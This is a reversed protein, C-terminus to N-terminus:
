REGIPACSADLRPAYISREAGRRLPEAARRAAPTDGAACLALVRTVEREERLVEGANRDLEALQILALSAQGQRLAVNARRLRELVEAFDGQQRPAPPRRAAASPPASSSGTSRPAVPPEHTPQSAPPTSDSSPSPALALVSRDSMPPELVHQLGNVAPAVRAADREPPAPADGRGMAYGLAFGLAAAVIGTSCLIGLGRAEVAWARSPPRSVARPPLPARAVPLLRDPVVEAGLRARLAATVRERDDDSPASLRNIDTLIRQLDRANTRNM